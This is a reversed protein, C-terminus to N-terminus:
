QDVQLEPVGRERSLELSLAGVFLLHQNRDDCWRACNQALHTAM